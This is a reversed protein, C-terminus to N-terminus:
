ANSRIVAAESLVATSRNGELSSSTDDLFICIIINGDYVELYNNTNSMSRVEGQTTGNFQKNIFPQTDLNFQTTM